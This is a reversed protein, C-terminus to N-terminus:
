INKELCRHMVSQYQPYTEHMWKLIAAYAESGYGRGQFEPALWLGIEPGDTDHFHLGITGLFENVSTTYIFRSLAKKYFEKQIQGELFIKEAQIDAPINYNVFRDVNARVFKGYVEAVNETHFPVLRLRETTIITKWTTDPHFTIHPPINRM